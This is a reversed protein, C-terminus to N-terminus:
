MCNRLYLRKAIGIYWTLTGQRLICTIGIIKHNGKMDRYNAVDKDKRMILFDLVHIM